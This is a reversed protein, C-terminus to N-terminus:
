AAISAPGRAVADRVLPLLHKGYDVADDVPDFGRILFTTVGLNYYDLLAEAVQEPTGVLGTTNAGAGVAAAVETWLRKDRVKGGRAAELLRQSGVSEPKATGRGFAEGRLQRIRELIDRAREWAAAETEALVPRLSLSFRISGPERGAAAAAARVRAITERAQELTEGWFAYVDAHRAAIEIAIDSSGGFYVPIHPKQLPKVRSFAGEYRYFEGQHDFPQESTWIRRLLGVYEDTRRYRDDHDLFDGDAKQETPSGGTIVHIATRGGTFVDLTAFQRAAWTPQLFGPRHAIMFGIRSTAAAAQSAVLVADADHSNHAVLIRDFGAAEHVQAAQAVYAPDIAPGSPPRTESRDQTAIMGIFEVSM